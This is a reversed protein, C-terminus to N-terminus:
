KGKKVLFWYVHNKRLHNINKWAGSNMVHTRYMIRLDDPNLNLEKCANVFDVSHWQYISSHIIDGLKALIIGNSKLIRKAEKLFPIFCDSINNKTRYDQAQFNNGTIGFREKYIKSANESDGDTPLYPPDFVIIDISNNKLPINRFDSIVDPKFDINIDMKINPKYKCGNWMKGTNHCVDVIIPNPIKCHIDILQEISESDKGQICSLPRETSADKEQIFNVIESDFLSLNM